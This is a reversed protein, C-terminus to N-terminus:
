HYKQFYSLEKWEVALLVKIGSFLQIIDAVLLCTDTLPSEKWNLKKGLLKQQKRIM